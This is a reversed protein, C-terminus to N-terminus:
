GFRVVKASHGCFLQHFVLMLGLGPRCHLVECLQAGIRLLRGVNRSCRCWAEQLDAAVSAALAQIWALPPKDQERVFSWGLCQDLRTETCDADQGMGSTIRRAWTAHVREM